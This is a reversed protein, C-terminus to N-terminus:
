GNIGFNMSIMMRRNLRETTTFGSPAQVQSIKKFNRLYAHLQKDFFWEDSDYFKAPESWLKAYAVGVTHTQQRIREDVNKLETYGIIIWGDNPKYEPLVYAYIQPYVTKTTKIITNGSM